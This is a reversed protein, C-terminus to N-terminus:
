RMSTYHLIGGVVVIIGSLFNMALILMMGLAIALAGYIEVRGRRMAYWLFIAAIGGGFAFLSGIFLLGGWFRGLFWPMEMMSHMFGDSIWFAATALHALESILAIIGGILVLTAGIGSYKRPVAEPYAVAGIAAGCHPCYNTGEAVETGCRHCYPM